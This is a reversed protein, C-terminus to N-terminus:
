KLRARGGSGISSGSDLCTPRPRRAAPPPCCDPASSPSLAPIWKPHGPAPPHLTSSCSSM